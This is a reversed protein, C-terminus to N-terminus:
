WQAHRLGLKVLFFLMASIFYFFSGYILKAALPSKIHSGYKSWVSFPSVMIHLMTILKEPQSLVAILVLDIFSFNMIVAALILGWYIIGALGTHQFEHITIVVLYYVVLSTCCAGLVANILRLIGGLKM